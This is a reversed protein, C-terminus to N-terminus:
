WGTANMGCATYWETLQFTQNLDGYQCKNANDTYTTQPIFLSVARYHDTATPITNYQTNNPGVYIRPTAYHSTVCRELAQRVNTLYPEPLIREFAQLADYNHPRYYFKWTYTQYNLVSSMDPSQRNALTSYPLADKLATALASLQDTRVASIAIGMEDYTTYYENAVDHYYTRTISDPSAAFLGCRLQSTYNAGATPISMPSAVVYDTVNRLAYDVELNQMLCADFLIYNFHLGTHQIAQALDAINMQTGDNSIYKNYNTDIGFSFPRAPAASKGLYPTDYDTNTAPLWGDAHSWLTLGYEQAPFQDKVTQLVAQLTRPSTSCTDNDFTTILHPKNWQRAIRYLRPARLSDDDIFLLLRDNDALYQRGNMLETSDAAANGKLSNQAAMYILVTRRAVTSGPQVPDDDHCSCLLLSFLLILPYLRQM